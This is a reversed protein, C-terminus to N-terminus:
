RGQTKRIALFDAPKSDKLSLRCSWTQVNLSQQYLDFQDLTSWDRAVEVYSPYQTNASAHNDAGLQPAMDFFSFDQTEDMSNPFGGDIWPWPSETMAIGTFSEMPSLPTTRFIPPRPPGLGLPQREVLDYRGRKAISELPSGARHKNTGSEFNEQM